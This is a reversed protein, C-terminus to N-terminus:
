GHGPLHAQVTVLRDPWEICVGYGGSPNPGKDPIIVCVYERADTGTGTDASAAPAGVLAIASFAMSASAAFLALSRKLQM